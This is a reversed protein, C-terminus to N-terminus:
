SYKNEKISKIDGLIDIILSTFGEEINNGDKASTEYFKYNFKKALEIGEKAEVNRKHKWDNKNGFLICKVNNGVLTSIQEIWNNVNCFSERNTIDYIIIFGNSSNFYSKTVVKYREEGATDWIQVKIKKNDITLNKIQFDIGITTIYKGLFENKCYKRLISSKGVSSDGLLMIKIKEDFDEEISYEEEEEESPLM